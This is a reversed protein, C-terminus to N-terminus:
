SEEAEICTVGQPGVKAGHRVDIPLILRDGPHLEIDRSYDSLSFTISGTLCFLTKRYPHCHVEYVEGPNNSWRTPSLGRAQFFALIEAEPLPHSHPWRLVQVGVPLSEHYLPQKINVVTDGTFDWMATYDLRRSFEVSCSVEQEM